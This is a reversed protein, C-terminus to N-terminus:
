TIPHMSGYRDVQLIEPHSKLVWPPPSATPTGLVVKIGQKSLVEIVDDLWSFDYVGESPAIRSWTFEALRVTNFNLEGM